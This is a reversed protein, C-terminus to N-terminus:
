EEVRELRLDNFFYKNDEWVTIGTNDIICVRGFLTRYYCLRHPHGNLSVNIRQEEDDFELDEWKLYHKPEQAKLLAQKITNYYEKWNGYGQSTYPLKELCELAESPNANDISEDIIINHYQSGSLKRNEAEMIKNLAEVQEKDHTEYIIHDIGNYHLNIVACQEDKEMGLDICITLLEKSM